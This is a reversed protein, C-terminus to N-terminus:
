GLELVREKLGIRDLNLALTTFKPHGVNIKEFVAKERSGDGYIYQHRADFVSKFTYSYAKPPTITIPKIDVPEPVLLTAPYFSCLRNRIEELAEDPIISHWHPAWFRSTDAGGYTNWSLDLAGILELSALGAVQLFKTLATKHAEIVLERLKAPQLAPDSPVVTLLATPRGEFRKVVGRICARKQAVGCQPCAGSGCRSGPVCSRLKTALQVLESNGTRALAAAYSRSLRSRAAARKEGDLLEFNDDVHFHEDLWPEESM